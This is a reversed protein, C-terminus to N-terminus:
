GQTGRGVSVLGSWRPESTCVLFVTIILVMSVRSPSTLAAPPCTPPVSQPRPMMEREKGEPPSRPSGAAARPATSSETGTGLRGEAGGLGTSGGVRGGGPVARAGGAGGPERRRSRLAECSAGPDPGPRPAASLSPPSLCSPTPPAPPPRPDWCRTRCGGAGRLGRGARPRDRLLLLRRGARCRLGGRLQRKEQTPSCLHRPRPSTPTSRPGPSREGGWAARFTAGDPAPPPSLPQAPVPSASRLPFGYTSVPFLLLSHTPSLPCLSLLAPSLGPPWPRRGWGEGWRVGVGGRTRSQRRSFYVSSCRGAELADVPRPPPLPLPHHVPPCRPTSLEVVPSCGQQYWSRLAARGRPSSLRSCAGLPEPTGMNRQSGRGATPAPSAGLVRLSAGHEGM